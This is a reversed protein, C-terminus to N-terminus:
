PTALVLAVNAMNYMAHMVVPVALRRSREYAVGLALSFAALPPLAYWPVVSVHMLTFFGTTIAIALWPRHLLRVLGTQFFIRYVLEETIPAGIVAIAITGWIWPNSPEDSIRQLTVHAIRAPEADLHYAIAVAALSVMWVVPAVLVFWGLGHFLDGWRLGLGADSARADGSARRVAFILVCGTAIAAVYASGAILVSTSVPPEAGAAPPLGVASAVAAGIMQGLVAAAFVALSGAMWAWWPLVGIERRPARRFSGTRIVDSRWLVLLALLGTAVILVDSGV